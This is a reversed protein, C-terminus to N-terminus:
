PKKYLTYYYKRKPNYKSENVPRTCSVLIYGEKTKAWIQRLRGTKRVTISIGNSHVDLRAYWKTNSVGMGQPVGVIKGCYTIPIVVTGDGPFDFYRESKVPPNINSYSPEWKKGSFQKETCGLYGKGKCEWEHWVGKFPQVLRNKRAREAAVRQSKTRKEVAQEHRYELKITRRKVADRDEANPSLAVYRKFSRAAGALDGAQEQAVGLNFWAAGWKPALETAKKFEIVAKKYGSIDNADEMAAEGRFMYRQAEDSANQALVPLSILIALGLMYLFRHISTM